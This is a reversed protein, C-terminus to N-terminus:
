KNNHQILERAYLASHRPVGAMYSQLWGSRPRVELAPRMASWLSMNILM